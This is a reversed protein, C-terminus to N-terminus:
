GNKERLTKEGSFLADTSDSVIKVSKAKSISRVISRKKKGWDPVKTAKGALRKPLFLREM